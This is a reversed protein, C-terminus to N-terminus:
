THSMCAARAQNQAIAHIDIVPPRRNNSAAPPPHTLGGTLCLQPTALLSNANKLLPFEFRLRQPLDISESFSERGRKKLFFTDPFLATVKDWFGFHESRSTYPFERIGAKLSPPHSM